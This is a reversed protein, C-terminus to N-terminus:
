IPHHKHLYSRLFRILNSILLVIVPPIFLGILGYKIIYPMLSTNLNPLTTPTYDRSALVGILVKSMAVNISHTLYGIYIGGFLGLLAVIGLIVLSRRNLWLIKM